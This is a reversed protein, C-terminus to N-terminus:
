WLFTVTENYTGLKELGKILTLLWQINIMKFHLISIKKFDCTEKFYYYDYNINKMEEINTLIHIKTSNDKSLKDILSSWMTTKDSVFHKFSQQFLFWIPKYYTLKPKGITYFKM